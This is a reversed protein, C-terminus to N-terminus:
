KVPVPTDTGSFYNQLLHAFDVPVVGCCFLLLARVSHMHRQM